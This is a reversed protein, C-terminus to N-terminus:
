RHSRHPGICVLLHGPIFPEAGAGVVLRGEAVAPAGTSPAGLPVAAVVKGTATELGRLMGDAGTAFLRDGALAPAAFSFSPLRQRWLVRGTEPALAAAVCSNRAADNSLVYIRRGDTAVPGGEPGNTPGAVSAKKSLAPTLRRHWLRRQTVRDWAQFGDKSAAVLIHGLIVPASNFDFGHTDGRYVQDSWVIAGDSLRLALLSDTGPNPGPLGRYPSGTAVYALNARLDVSAPAIVGGGNAGPPVTPTSWVLSGDRLSYASLRGRATPLEAGSGSGVLVLGRVVVPPGWFYDDSTSTRLPKSRWITRGTRKDLAVVRDSAAIVRGDAVAVGGFFGLRRAGAGSGYAPTTFRRRWHAHGTALDFSAIVGGISAAFVRGGVIAPAGAAGGRLETRWDVRTGAIRGGHRTAALDHAPLEWAGTAAPLPIAHGAKAEIAALALGGALAILTRRDYRPETSPTRPASEDMAKGFIIRAANSLSM